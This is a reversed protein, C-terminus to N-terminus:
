DEEISDLLDYIYEEYLMGKSKMDNLQAELKNKDILGSKYDEVLSEAIPGYKQIMEEELEEEKQIKEEYERQERDDDTEKIGTEKFNKEIEKEESERQDREYDTEKIGTEKFNKEIQERHQREYDTEKIGTEKFNKMKESNIRDEQAKRFEKEKIELEEKEKKMENEATEILNVIFTKFLLDINTRKNLKLERLLDRRGSNFRKEFKLNDLHLREILYDTGGTFIFKEQKLFKVINESLEQKAKIALQQNEITEVLLFYPLILGSLKKRLSDIDTDIQMAYELMGWNSNNKETDFQIGLVKDFLNKPKEVLDTSYSKLEKDLMIEYLVSNSLLANEPTPIDKLLKM